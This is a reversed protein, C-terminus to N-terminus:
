PSVPRRPAPKRDPASSPARVARREGTAPRGGGGGPSRDAWTEPYALVYRKGGSAAQLIVRTAQVDAVVLPSPEDDPGRLRQGQEHIRGDIIAMRSRGQLFTGSLTLGAVLGPYPDVEVRDPAAHAEDASAQAPGPVSAVRFPDRPALGAEAAGAERASPAQPQPTKGAVEAPKRAAAPPMPGAVDPQLAYTACALAALMLLMPVLKMAKRTDM